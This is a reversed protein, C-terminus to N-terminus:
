PMPYKKDPFYPNTNKRQCLYLIVASKVYDSTFTTCGGSSLVPSKSGCNISLTWDGLISWRYSSRRYVGPPLLKELHEKYDKHECSEAPKPLKKVDMYFLGGPIFATLNGREAEYRFRLVTGISYGRLVALSFSSM